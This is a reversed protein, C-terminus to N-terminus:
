ANTLRTSKLGLAITNSACNSLSFCAFYPTTCADRRCAYQDGRSYKAAIQKYRELQTRIFDMVGRRGRKWNWREVASTSMNAAPPNSQAFKLRVSRVSHM